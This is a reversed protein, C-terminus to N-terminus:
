PYQHNVIHFDPFDEQILPSVNSTDIAKKQEAKCQGEIQGSSQNLWNEQSQQEQSPSTRQLPAESKLKLFLSKKTKKNKSSKKTPFAWSNDMELALVAFGM